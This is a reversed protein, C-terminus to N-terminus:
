VARMDCFETDGGATPNRTAHLIIARCPQARHSADAHWTEANDVIGVASLDCRRENSMILVDPDDPHLYLIQDPTSRGAQQRLAALSPRATSDTTRGNNTTRAGAGYSELAGFQRGFAALEAASLLQNRLVLVPYDLLAQNTAQVLDPALPTACDLGEIEAALRGLPKLELRM